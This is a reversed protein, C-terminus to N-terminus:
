EKMGRLTSLAQKCTDHLWGCKIYAHRDDSDSQMVDMAVKDIELLAEIAVERQKMLHNCNTVLESRERMLEHILVIMAVSSAIFSGNHAAVEEAIVEGSERSIVDMVHLDDNIYGICWEGQTRKEDLGKLRAYETDPNM